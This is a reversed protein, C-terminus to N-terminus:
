QKQVWERYGISIKLDFSSGLHKKAIELVVREKESLTAIYKEVMDPMELQVNSYNYVILKLYPLYFM